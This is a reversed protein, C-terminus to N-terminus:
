IRVQCGHTLTSYYGCITFGGTAETAPCLLWGQPHSRYIHHFRKCVFIYTSPNLKYLPATLFVGYLHSSIAQKHLVMNGLICILLILYKVALTLDRLYSGSAGLLCSIYQRASLVIGLRVIILPSKLSGFATM